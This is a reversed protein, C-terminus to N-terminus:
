ETIKKLENLAQNDGQLAANITQQVTTLIELALQINEKLQFDSNQSLLPSVTTKYHLIFAESDRINFNAKELAQLMLLLPNQSGSLDDPTKGQENSLREYMAVAQVRQGRYRTTNLEEPSLSDLYQVYKEFYLRM